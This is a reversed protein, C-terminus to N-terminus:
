RRKYNNSRSILKETEQQKNKNVFKGGIRTSSLDEVYQTLIRVVLSAQHEQYAKDYEGEICYLRGNNRNILIVPKSPYQIYFFQPTELVSIPLSSGCGEYVRLITEKSLLEVKLRKYMFLQLNTGHHQVPVIEKCLYNVSELHKNKSDGSQSKLGSLRKMDMRRLM